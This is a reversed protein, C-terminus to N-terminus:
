EENFSELIHVLSDITLSDSHWVEFEGFTDGFICSQSPLDCPKQTIQM